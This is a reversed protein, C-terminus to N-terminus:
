RAVGFSLSSAAVVVFLLEVVIRSGTGALYRDRAALATVADAQPWAEIHLRHHLINILLSEIAKRQERGVEEIEEAIHPWDLENNDYWTLREGEAFRRL